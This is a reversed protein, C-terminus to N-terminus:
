GLDHKRLLLIGQSTKYNGRCISDDYSIRIRQKSELCKDKEYKNEHQLESVGYDISVDNKAPQVFQGSANTM